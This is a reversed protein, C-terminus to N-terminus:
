IARGSAPVGLDDNGPPAHVGTVSRTCFFPSGDYAGVLSRIAPMAPAERGLVCPCRNQAEQVLEHGQDHVALTYSSGEPM